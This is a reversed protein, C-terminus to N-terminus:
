KNKSYCNRNPYLWEIFKAGCEKVAYYAPIAVALGLVIGLRVNESNVVYDYSEMITDLPAM